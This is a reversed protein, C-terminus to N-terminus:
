HKKKGQVEPMYSKMCNVAITCSYLPAAHPLKRFWHYAITVSLYSPKGKTFLLVSSSRKVKQNKKWFVLSIQTIKTKWKCFLVTTLFFYNQVNQTTHCPFHIWDTEFCVVSLLQSLTTPHSKRISTKWAWFVVRFCVAHGGTKRNEASWISWDIPLTTCTGLWCAM